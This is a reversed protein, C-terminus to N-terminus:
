GTRFWVSDLERVVEAMTPREKMEPRVCRAALERIRDVTTEGPAKDGWLPKPGVLLRDMMIGISGVDSAACLPVQPM